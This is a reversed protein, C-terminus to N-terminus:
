SVVDYALEQMLIARAVPLDPRGGRRRRVEQVSQDSLCAMM